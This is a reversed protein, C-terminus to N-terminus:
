GDKSSSDSYLVLLLSSARLTPSWVITRSATDPMSAKYAAELITAATAGSM